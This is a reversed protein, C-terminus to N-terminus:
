AGDDHPINRSRDSRGRKIRGVVLLNKENFHFGMKITSLFVAVPRAIFILILSLLFGKFIIDFSLFQAPFVLLGLIIFMLDADDLCLKM